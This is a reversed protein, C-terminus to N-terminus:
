SLWLYVLLAALTFSAAIALVMPITRKFVGWMVSRQEKKSLHIKDAQVGRRVKRDYWPMGPVDMDTFSIGPDVFKERKKKEKKSM